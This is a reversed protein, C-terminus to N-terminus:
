CGFDFVMELKRGIGRDDGAGFEREALLFDDFDAAHQGPEHFM